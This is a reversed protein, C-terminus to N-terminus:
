MEQQWEGLLEPIESLIVAVENPPLTMYADREHATSTMWVSGNVDFFCLDEPLPSIWDYLGNTYSALLSASSKNLQFTHLATKISEGDENGHGRITGPWVATVEVSLTHNALQEFFDSCAATREGGQDVLGGISGRSVALNLLAIYVHERPEKIFNWTSM